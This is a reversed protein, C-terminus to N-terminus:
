ILPTKKALTLFTMPYKNSSDRECEEKSVVDYDEQRYRPFYTDGEFKGHVLTVYLRDALAIATKYLQGGGIVFVESHSSCLKVAAGLSSAIEVNDPVVLNPQTTVVINLRGPLARGISEFTRRGMIVPHGLTVEKFHKLDKPLHWPMDGEKGIVYNEAHAVIISLM